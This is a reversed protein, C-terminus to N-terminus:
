GTKKAILKLYDVFEEFSDKNKTKILFNQKSTFLIGPLKETIEIFGGDKEIKEKINVNEIKLVFNASIEEKNEDLLLINKDVTFVILCDVFKKSFGGIDREVLIEKMVLPKEKIKKMEFGEFFRELDSLKLKNENNKENFKDEFRENYKENLRESFKEESKENFIPKGENCDLYKRLFIAEGKSVVNEITFEEESAKVYDFENIKKLSVELEASIGYTKMLNILYDNFTRQIIALIECQIKLLELWYNLMERGLKRHLNIQLNATELFQLQLNYLDKVKKSRQYNTEIMLHFLKSYKMWKEVVEVNTKQLLKKLNVIKDKFVSLKKPLEQLFVGINERCITKELFEIFIMLNKENKQQFEDYIILNDTLEKFHGIKEVSKPDKVVFTETFIDGIKSSKRIFNCHETEMVIKEKFFKMLKVLSNQSFEIKKDLKIVINDIFNRHTILFQQKNEDWNKVAQFSMKKREIYAEDIIEDHSKRREIFKEFVKFPELKYQSKEEPKEINEMQYSPKMFENKQSSLNPNLIESSRKEDLNEPELSEIHSEQNISSQQSFNEQTENM